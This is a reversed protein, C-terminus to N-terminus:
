YLVEAFSRYIQLLRRSAESLTRLEGVETGCVRPVRITPGRITTLITQAELLYCSADSDRHHVHIHVFM